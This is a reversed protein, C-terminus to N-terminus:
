NPENAYVSMAIMAYGDQGDMKMRLGLGTTPFIPDQVVCLRVLMPENAGGLPGLVPEIDEARNICTVPTGPMTWNATNISQMEILLNQDCDRLIAARECIADRLEAHTVGPMAGLRIDRMVHDLAQDMMVWRTMYLGSEISALFITVIVPVAIVFEATATGDERAAFGDKHLSFRAAVGKTRAALWAGAKAIFRMM